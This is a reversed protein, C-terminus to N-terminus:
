LLRKGWGKLTKGLFLGNEKDYVFDLFAQAKERVVSKVKDFSIAVMRRAM